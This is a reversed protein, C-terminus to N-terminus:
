PIKKTAKDRDIYNIYSEFNYGEQPTIFRLKYVIGPSGM